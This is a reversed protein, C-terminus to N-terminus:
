HEWHIASANFCCEGHACLGNIRGTKRRERLLRLSRFVTSGRRQWTNTVSIDSCAPELFCSQLGRRGTGLRLPLPCHFVAEQCRKLWGPLCPQHILGTVGGGGDSGVGVARSGPARPGAPTTQACTALRPILAPPLSTSAQNICCVPLLSSELHTQM